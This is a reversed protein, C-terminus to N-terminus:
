ILTKVKQAVDEGLIKEAKEGDGHSLHNAYLLASIKILLAEINDLKKGWVYLLVMALIFTGGFDIFGKLTDLDM